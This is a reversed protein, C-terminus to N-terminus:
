EKGHTIISIVRALLAAQDKTPLAFYADTIPLLLQQLSGSQMGNKVSREVDKRMGVTDHIARWKAVLDKDKLTGLFKPANLGKLATKNPEVETFQYVGGPYAMNVRNKEWFTFGGELDKVTQDNNLDMWAQVMKGKSTERTGICVMLYHKPGVNILEEPM